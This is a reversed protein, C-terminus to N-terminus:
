LNDLHVVRIFGFRHSSENPRDKHGDPEPM